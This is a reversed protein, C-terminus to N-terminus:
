PVETIKFQEILSKCKRNEKFKRCVKVQQYVFFIINKKNTKIIDKYEKIVDM